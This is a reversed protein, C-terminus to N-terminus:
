IAQSSIRESRHSPAQERNCHTLWRHMLQCARMPLLGGGVNKVSYVLGLELQSWPRFLWLLLLGLDVQYICNWIHSPAQERHCYNLWLHMLQCERMPLLGGCKVSYVLSLEPRSSSQLLWLLLLGLDVQYICIWIHSPAQERHCYNLWLHM